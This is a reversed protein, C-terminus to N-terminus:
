VQHQSLTVYFCLCTSRNLEYGRLTEVLGTSVKTGEALLLMGNYNYIDRTITMDNTLENINVAFEELESELQTNEAYYSVFAKVVENRYYCGSHRTLFDIAQSSQNQGTRMAEFFDIVIRLVQSALPIEEAVLGEPYGSGDINERHSRIIQAVGQMHLLPVLSEEGIVPYQRYQVQEEFSLESLSKANLEDSFSLKGFQYLMAANKIDAIIHGNLGLSEALGKSHKRILKSVTESQGLRSNIMSSFVRVTTAYTETLESNSLELLSQTKTLNNNSQDVLKKLSRNSDTLQSTQQQLKENDKRKSDTLQKQILAETVVDKLEKNDWPKNLYGYIKGQNIARVTAKQDSFGTLLIRVSDPSFKESAALFEAGDMTPMRMDSIIVDYDNETVKNLAEIPESETDVSCGARKLVRKLSKLVGIEDDVCLVRPETEYSTNLM